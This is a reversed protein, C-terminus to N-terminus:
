AGDADARKLVIIQNAPFPGFAERYGDTWTVTVKSIIASSGLGFHVRPDNSSCYGCASRVERHARGGRFKIEIWAGIADSGHGNVVQFMVWNNGTSAINRLLYPRDDNNLVFIDVDGDNDYDGFAAGRSSHVLPTLTGGRPLIERWAGDPRGRFLQNIEAYGEHAGQVNSGLIVRGNAVYADLYGDNDFDALATGFGTFPLSASMGFRASADHFYRGENLYFTNTQDLFHTLFADMDGDGDVDQVDIGMGAEAQGDSNFAFGMALAEDVFGGDAQHVWLFNASLDNAVLIEPVGDGTVDSCAVGLGNGLVHAIGTVESVDEFVGGGKNRYLIDAAPAAYASPICYGPKGSAGLCEVERDASWRIYNVVYLDLDGDRDYDVFAASTGFGPDDVGAHLSVDSFTGDGNNHYLTNRGVNTVYIDTWGDNDFDACACGMSFSKDAVGATTTVDVFSKGGMNRYLRNGPRNRESGAIPGGQPFYVDLFGDNDFDILGVGGAMIEPMYFKDIHGREHRFDLGQAAAVDEFWAAKVQGASESEAGQVSKRVTGAKLWFFVGTGFLLVFVVPGILDIGRFKAARAM